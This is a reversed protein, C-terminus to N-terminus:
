LFYCSLILKSPINQVVNLAAVKEHKKSGANLYM